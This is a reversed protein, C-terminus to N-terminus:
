LFCSLDHQNKHFQSRRKGQRPIVPRIFLGAPVGPLNGRQPFPAPIKKWYLKKVLSFDQFEKPQLFAAYNSLAEERLMACQTTIMIGADKEFMRYRLMYEMEM